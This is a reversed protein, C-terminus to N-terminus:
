KKKEKREKKPPTFDTVTKGQNPPEDLHSLSKSHKSRKCLVLTENGLVGRLSMVVQGTVGTGPSRVGM